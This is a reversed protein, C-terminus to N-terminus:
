ETVRRQVLVKEEADFVFWEDYGTEIAVRGVDDIIRNKWWRQM